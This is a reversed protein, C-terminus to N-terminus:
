IFDFISMQKAIYRSPTEVIEYLSGILCKRLSTIEEKMNQDPFSITIYENEKEELVKEYFEKGDRAGYISKLCHSKWYHTPKPIFKTSMNMEWSEVCVM